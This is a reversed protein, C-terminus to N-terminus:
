LLALFSLYGPGKTGWGLAPKGGTEMGEPEQVTSQGCVEAWPHM